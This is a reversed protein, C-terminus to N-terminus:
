DNLEGEWVGGPARSREFITPAFGCKVTAKATQLGAVGGVIIRVFRESENAAATTAAASM